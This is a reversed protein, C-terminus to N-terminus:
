VPLLVRAPAELRYALTLEHTGRPSLEVEWRAFGDRADLRAGASSIVTVEVEKLESVPVREIVTLRRAEGGLNSLYLRVRREIRQTGLLATTERKEDVHRRVRLGDDVGFGLEFADGRGVFGVRSRGVMETGRAVRVPGALLPRPGALTATARVHATEGKEPFVVRDVTCAMRATAVEVRFPNGDSPISVPRGAEFWLAEGGDEVGPMEDVARVGRDLGALAVSQERTEVVVARKEAESKRRVALVDETVRPASASQAPRATSFRCAVDRWVEGTQQWVTAWTTIELVRGPDGGGGGGDGTVLRALHEPRWLACPTRYTIDLVTDCGVAAEVQVEVLAEYRAHIVRAMSLRLEARARDLGARDGEARRAAADDLARTIAGDMADFAARWAAVVKEGGETGGRPVRRVAASWRDALAVARALDAEARGLSRAADTVARVAARVGAEAAEVEVADGAPETRVRRAVRAAIVRAGEGHIGAVLSPDDVAVSVGAVAVWSAGAPVTCRARRVVEARDEFLTVAVAESPVGELANETM